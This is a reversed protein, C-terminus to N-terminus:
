RPDSSLGDSVRWNSGSNDLATYTAAPSRRTRARHALQHRRREVKSATRIVPSGIASPSATAMSASTRCPLRRRPRRRCAPWGAAALAPQDGRVCATGEIPFQREEPAVAAHDRTKTAHLLEDVEHRQRGIPSATAACLEPHACWRWRVTASRRRTRRACAASWRHARAATTGACGTHDGSPLRAPTQRGAAPSERHRTREPYASRRRSSLSRTSSSKPAGPPTTPRRGTVHQHAYSSNWPTSCRLIARTTPSFWRRQRWKDLDLMSPTNEGSVRNTANVEDSLPRSSTYRHRGKRLPPLGPREGRLASIDQAPARVPSLNQDRRQASVDHRIRHCARRCRRPRREVSHEDAVDAEVRLYACAM